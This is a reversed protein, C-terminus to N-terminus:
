IYIKSYYHIFNHSVLFKHSKINHLWHALLWVIEYIYIYDWSLIESWSNETDDHNMGFCLNIKKKKQNYIISIISERNMLTFLFFPEHKSNPRFLHTTAFRIRQMCFIQRGHFLKLLLPALVLGLKLLLPALVLGLNTAQGRHPLNRPSSFGFNNSTM